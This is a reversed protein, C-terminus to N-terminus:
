GDLSSSLFPHPAGCGNREDERSAIQGKIDGKEVGQVQGKRIMNM